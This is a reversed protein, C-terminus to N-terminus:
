NVAIFRYGYLYLVFLANIGRANSGFRELHVSLGYSKRLCNIGLVNDEEEFAFALHMLALLRIRYFAGLTFFGASVALALAFAFAFFGAGIALALAFALTFFGSGIALTLAFAFAFFGASIALALAFALTFMSASVALAFPFGFAFSFALLICFAFAFVALFNLKRNGFDAYLLDCVEFSGVALDYLRPGSGELCLFRLWELRPVLVFVAFLLNALLQL